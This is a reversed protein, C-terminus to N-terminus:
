AVDFNIGRYTDRMNPLKRMLEANMAAIRAGFANLQTSMSQSLGDISISTSQLGPFGLINVGAIYLLSITAIQGIAQLIDFPIKNDAFGTTYTASWYNPIKGANLYGMNPLLGAFIVANTVAGTNGAPVLYIAKHYIEDSSEKKSSLWETPYTAQKTTNLFGELKLPCVVMYNTKIFGWFKWHDNDFALSENYIQRKLKLALYNEIEKQAARIHFEIDSDSFNLNIKNVFPSNITIGYLYNNRLESASMVLDSNKSYSSILTIQSM